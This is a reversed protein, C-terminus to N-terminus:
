PRLWGHKRGTAKSGPRALLVPIHDGEPKFEDSFEDYTRRPKTRIPALPLVPAGFRHLPLSRLLIRILEQAQPSASQESIAFRILLAASYGTEVPSLRKFDVELKEQTGDPGKVEIQGLSGDGQLTLSLTSSDPSEISYRSLQPQGRYSTYTAVIKREETFGVSFFGARGYRGGKFTAISDYTGLDFPPNNFSPRVTPFDPQFVHALMAMFTSKGTSNEGVLLTLPRLPIFHKGVFSRVNELFIEM